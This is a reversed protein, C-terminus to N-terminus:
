WALRRGTVHVRHALAEIDALQWRRFYRAVDQPDDTVAAVADDASAGRAVLLMAAVAPAQEVGTADHIYVARGRHEQRRIFGAIGALQAPTPAARRGTLPVSLFALSFDHAALKAVPDPRRLSVVGGINFLDRLSALDIDRPQAGRMLVGNVVWAVNGVTPLREAPPKRFTERAILGFLAVLVAVALVVQRVRRERRSPAPGAGIAPTTDDILM